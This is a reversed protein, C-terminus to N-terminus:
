EAGGTIEIGKDLIGRGVAKRGGIRDVLRGSARLFQKEVPTITGTIILKGCFTVPPIAEEFFLHDTLTTRRVRSLCTGPRIESDPHIVPNPNSDLLAEFLFKLSGDLEAQGVQFMAPIAPSGFLKCLTCPSDKCLPGSSDHIRLGAPLGGARLLREAFFRWRGKVSSGSICPLGKSNRVVMRDVLGATALGTFTSVSTRFKLEYQLEAM